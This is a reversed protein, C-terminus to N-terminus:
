RTIMHIALDIMIIDPPQINGVTGSPRHTLADGKNKSNGPEFGPLPLFQRPTQDIMKKPDRRIPSDCVIAQVSEMIDPTGFTSYLTLHCPLYHMPKDGRRTHTGDGADTIGDRGIAWLFHWTPKALGSVRNTNKCLTTVYESQDMTGLNTAQLPSHKQLVGNRFIVEAQEPAHYRERYALCCYCLTKRQICNGRPPLFHTDHRSSVNCKRYLLM